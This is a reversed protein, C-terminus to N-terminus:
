IVNYPSTFARFKLLKNLNEAQLAKAEMMKEPDTEDVYNTNVDRFINSFL